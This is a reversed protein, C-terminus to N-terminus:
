ELGDVGSKDVLTRLFTNISQESKLNPIISQALALLKTVSKENAINEQASSRIDIIVKGDSVFDKKKLTKSLGGNDFLAIIKKSSGSM